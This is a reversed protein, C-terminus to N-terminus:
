TLEGKTKCFFFLFYLLIRFINGNSKIPFNQLPNQEPKTATKKNNKCFVKTENRKTQM